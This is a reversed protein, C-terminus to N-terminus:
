VARIRLSIQVKSTACAVNNSIEHVPENTILHTIFLTCQITTVKDDVELERLTMRLQFRLIKESPIKAYFSLGLVNCLAQLQQVSLHKMTLEDEFLRSFKVIEETTPQVKESKVQYFLVYIHSM